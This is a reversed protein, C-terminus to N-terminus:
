RRPAIYEYFKTGGNDIPQWSSVTEPNTAYFQLPVNMVSVLAWQDQTHNLADMYLKAREERSMADGGLTGLKAFLNDLFEDSIIQFGIDESQHFKNLYPDWPPPGTELGWSWMWGNTADELWISRFGLLEMSETKTKIGIDDWYSAIAQLAEPLPIGPFAYSALRVEMGEHGADRLLQRARVPDYPIMCEDGPSAVTTFWPTGDACIGMGAFFTKNMAKRDIAINMAERVRIDHWPDEGTYNPHTSRWLGGFFIEFRRQNASRRLDFGGRSVLEVQETTIPIMDARGTELMALRTSDEPVSIFVLRDWMPNIRWHEDPVAEVEVRAGLEQSVFQYPGTGIPAREFGDEGVSEIYSKPTSILARAQTSLLGELSVDFEDFSFTLTYPDAVAMNPVRRKMHTIMTSKSDERAMETYALAVDDATLEGNGNHWTVGERINFVWDKLDPTSWSAALGPLYSTPDSIGQYLLHDYIPQQPGHSITPNNHALWNDGGFFLPAITLTGGRMPVEVPVEVTKVVEKVVTEGPVEVTKVVEKEVVVTEGPVVVTKVVEKEVVVTEGPVEVTKVVEKVVTEGPVEVTKVVEKEVVVTEGPIEVTKVVEKEVVVTEGPVEVERTCAVAFTVAVAAVVAIVVWQVGTNKM